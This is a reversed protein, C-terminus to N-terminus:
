RQIQNSDRLQDGLLCGCLPNARSCFLELVDNNGIITDNMM